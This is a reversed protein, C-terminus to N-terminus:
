HGEIESEEFIVEKNDNMKVEYYTKRGETIVNKVIGGQGDYKRTITFKPNTVVVPRNVRPRGM